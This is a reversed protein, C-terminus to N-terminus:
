CLHQFRELPISWVAKWWAFMNRCPLLNLPSKGGNMHKSGMGAFGVVGQFIFTNKNLPGKFFCAMLCDIGNLLNISFVWLSM